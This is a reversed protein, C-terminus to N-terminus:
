FSTEYVWTDLRTVKLLNAVKGLLNMNGLIFHASLQPFSLCIVPFLEIQGRTM